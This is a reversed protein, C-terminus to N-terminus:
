SHSVWLGVVDFMVLSVFQSLKNKNGQLIHDAGALSCNARM